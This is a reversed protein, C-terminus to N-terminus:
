TPESLATLAEICATRIAVTREHAQRQYDLQKLKDAARRLGAEHIAILPAVDAGEDKVRQAQAAVLRLDHESLTM